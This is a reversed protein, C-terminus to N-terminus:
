IGLTEFLDAIRGPELQPKSRKAWAASDWIKAKNISGTIVTDKTLGAYDRLEAPINIRGQADPECTVTNAWIVDAVSSQSPPLACLKAEMEAWVTEPYLVLHRCMSGDANKAEGISLRFHPGLEERLKAPVFLRGKADIAHEFQGTM